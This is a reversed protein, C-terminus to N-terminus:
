PMIAGEGGIVQGGEWGQVGFVGGYEDDGGGDADSWALADNGDHSVLVYDGGWEPSANQCAPLGLLPGMGPPHRCAGFIM